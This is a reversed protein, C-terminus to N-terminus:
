RVSVECYHYQTSLLLYISLEVFLACDGIWKFYLKVIKLSQRVVSCIGARTQSINNKVTAVLGNSLGDLSGICKFGLLRNFHEWNRTEQTMVSEVEGPDELGGEDDDDDDDDEEESEEVPEV